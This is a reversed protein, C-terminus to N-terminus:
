AAETKLADAISQAWAAIAEWDRFDGTPAGVRKIIMKEFFGLNEPDLAGHFVMLERPQIKDITPELKKPVVWGELLHAPDGEGTPGSAFLWVAHNRLADANQELFHVADRRWQGMYMATGIIVASYDRLHPAQEVSRVDTHLGAQRLVAAVKEAIEATSGHKTAYVILVRADM